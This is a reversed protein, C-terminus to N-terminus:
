SSESLSPRVLTWDSADQFAVAIKLLLAEDFPRGVLQLGVPLGDVRGSPVSIAPQGTVNFPSAFRIMAEAVTETGDQGWDVTAAGIPPATIPTAPLALVDVQTMVRAVERCMQGRLRQAQIYDRAPIALGLELRTRVDDGFDGPRERLSTEHVAAAEPLALLRNVLVMDSLPPLAVPEVRAGLDTLTQVADLISSKVGPHVRRSMWDELIGIRLGTLGRRGEMACAVYDPLVRRRSAPDDPDYGALVAMMFAADIAHWTLPGPHDLSWSLALVGTRGVLGYTPKIGVTGSVSAPM